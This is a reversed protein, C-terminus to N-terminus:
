CPVGSRHTNKIKSPGHDSWAATASFFKQSNADAEGAAIAREYQQCRQM